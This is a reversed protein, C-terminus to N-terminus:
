SSIAAGPSQSHGRQREDQQRRTAATRVSSRRRGGGVSCRSRRRRGGRCHHRGRSNRLGGRRGNSRTWATRDVGNRRRGRNPRLEGCCEDGIPRIGGVGWPICCERRPRDLSDAWSGKVHCRDRRRTRVPRLSRERRRGADAVLGEDAELIASVRGHEGSRRSCRPGNGIDSWAGAGVNRRRDQRRPAYRLGVVRAASADGVAPVTPM